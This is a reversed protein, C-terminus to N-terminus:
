ANSRKKGREVRPHPQWIDLTWVGDRRIRPRRDKRRQAGSPPPSPYAVADPGADNMHARVDAGFVTDSAEIAAITEQIEEPTM